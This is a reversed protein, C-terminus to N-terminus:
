STTKIKAVAKDLQTPDRITVQVSNANAVGIGTYGIQEDRLGNRIDDVLTTLREKVVASVDVELLLHSGGRLDLGLRLHKHPLWSPLSAATGAPVLNPLLFALGLTMAVAIMVVKWRAFYLM